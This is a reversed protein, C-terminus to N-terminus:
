APAAARPAEEARGPRGLQAAVPVGVVLCIAAAGLLADHVSADSVGAALALGALGSGAAAGLLRGASLMASVRGHRARPVANLAARSTPAFLLGLGLGVLALLPLSGAGHLSVGPVGLVALGLGAGTFGAVAPWREGRAD